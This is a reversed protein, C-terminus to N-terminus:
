YILGLINKQMQNKFCKSPEITISTKSLVFRNHRCYRPMITSRNSHTTASFLGLLINKWNTKIKKSGFGLHWYEMEKQTFQATEKKWTKRKYNGVNNKRVMKPVKQSPFHGNLKGISQKHFSQDNELFPEVNFLKGLVPPPHTLDEHSKHLGLFRNPIKKRVNMWEIMTHLFFASIKTWKGIKWYSNLIWAM